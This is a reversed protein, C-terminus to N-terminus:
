DRGKERREEGQRERGRREKMFVGERIREVERKEMCVEKREVGGEAARGEAERWGGAVTCHNM